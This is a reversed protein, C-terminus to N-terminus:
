FGQEPCKIPSYQRYTNIIFLIIISENFWYISNIMTVQSGDKIIMGVGLNDTITCNNLSITAGTTEIAGYGESPDVPIDLSKYNKAILNNNEDYKYISSYDLDNRNPVKIILDIFKNFNLRTPGILIPNTVTITNNETLQKKEEVWILTTDNFM